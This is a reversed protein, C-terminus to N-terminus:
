YEAGISQAADEIVHLGRQRALEMVADMEAIQGYLHVPMIAKTKDTIAAEIAAPDINFTEPEIDVFVPKAGVRWIAGATGFFTFPSTIVEDGPGIELAMLSCLLADTGSSVGVAADTACYAAIQSELERVAPGNCVPQADLAATVAQLIEQRIAAYQKPIDLMPVQM